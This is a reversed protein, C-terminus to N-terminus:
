AALCHGIAALLALQLYAPVHLACAKLLAADSAAVQVVVAAACAHRMHRKEELM